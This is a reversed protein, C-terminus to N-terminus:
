EIFETFIEPINRGLGDFDMGYGVVFQNEISFGNYNIKQKSKNKGPKSLLTCIKIDRVGQEYLYHFLWDITLGTDIIDEIIIIEKNKIDIQPGYLLEIKGKSETGEYSKVRIFDISIERDIAKCLDSIFMYSGNMVGILILEREFFDKKILEALEKIRNQIVDSTLFPIFKKGHLEIM